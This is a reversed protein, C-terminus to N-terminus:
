ALLVENEKPVRIVLPNKTIRKANSLVRKLSNGSAIVESDLLAIWEGSYKNIIDEDEKMKSGCSKKMIKNIERYKFINQKM